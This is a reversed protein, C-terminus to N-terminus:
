FILHFTFIKESRFCGSIEFLASYVLPMCCVSELLILLSFFIHFITSFYINISKILYIKIIEFAHIFLILNKVDSILFMCLQNLIFHLAVLWEDDNLMWPRAWRQFRKREIVCWFLKVLCVPLSLDFADAAQVGKDQESPALYVSLLLVFLIPLISFFFVFFFFLIMTMCFAQFITHLTTTISSRYCHM